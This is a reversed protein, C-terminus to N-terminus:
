HRPLDKYENLKQRPLLPVIRKLHFDNKAARRRKKDESTEWAVQIIKFSGALHLILVSPRMLTICSMIVFVPM